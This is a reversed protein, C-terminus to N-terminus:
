LGLIVWFMLSCGLPNHTSEDAQRDTCLIRFRFGIIHEYIQCNEIVARAL